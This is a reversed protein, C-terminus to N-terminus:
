YLIYILYVYIYLIIYVCLVEIIILRNLFKLQDCITPTIWSWGSRRIMSCRETVWTKKSPGFGLFWGFDHFIMHFIMHFWPSDWTSLHQDISVFCALHLYAAQLKQKSPGINNPVLSSRLFAPVTSVFLDLVQPFCMGRLTWAGGNTLQCFVGDIRLGRLAQDSPIGPFWPSGLSYGHWNLILLM